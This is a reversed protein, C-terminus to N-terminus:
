SVLQMGFQVDGSGSGDYGHKKKEQSSTLARLRRGM